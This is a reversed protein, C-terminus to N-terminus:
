FAPPQSELLLRAEERFLIVLTYIGSALCFPWVCCGWLSACSVFGAVLGVRRAAPHRQLLRVGALIEIIGSVLSLIGIGAWLAYMFALPPADPDGEMMGGAVAMIVMLSFLFWLGSLAGVIVNFIGVVKIHTLIRSPPSPPQSFSPPIPAPRQTPSAAPPPTPGLPQEATPVLFAAGCGPCKVRKGALDDTLNYMKGCGHCRAQIPMAIDGVELKRSVDM